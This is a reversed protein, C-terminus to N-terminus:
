ISCPPGGYSMVGPAAAGFNPQPEQGFIAASLLAVSAICAFARTM